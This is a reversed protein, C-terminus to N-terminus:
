SAARTIRLCRRGSVAVLLMPVLLVTTVWPLGSARLLPPPQPSLVTLLLGMVCLAGAVTVAFVGTAQAVRQPARVYRMGIGSALATILAGVMAGGGFWEVVESLLAYPAAPDGALDSAAALYWPSEWALPQMLLMCLCLVATRRSQALGLEAQFGPAIQGVDGFEHVARREADAATLGRREYARTADVLSDHAETLLDARVRRPGRLAGDLEAIYADIVDVPLREDAV